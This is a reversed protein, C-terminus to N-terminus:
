LSMETVGFLNNSICSKSLFAVNGTNINKQRM